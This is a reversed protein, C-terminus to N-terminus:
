PLTFQQNQKRVILAPHNPYLEASRDLVEGITLGMMPTDGTGHCYSLEVRAM